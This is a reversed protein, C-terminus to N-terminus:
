YQFTFVKRSKSLRVFIIHNSSESTSQVPYGRLNDDKDQWFLFADLLTSPIIGHLLRSPIFTEDSDNARNLEHHRHRIIVVSTPETFFDCM